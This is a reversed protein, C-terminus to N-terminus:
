SFSAGAHSKRGGGTKSGNSIREGVAWIGQSSRTSTIGIPTTISVPDTRRGACSHMPSTRRRGDLVIRGSAPRDCTFGSVAPHSWSARRSRTSKQRTRRVPQATHRPLSKRKRRGKGLRDRVRRAVVRREQWM